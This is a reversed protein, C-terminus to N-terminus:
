TTTNQKSTKNKYSSLVPAKLVILLTCHSDSHDNGQQLGWPDLLVQKHSQGSISDQLLSTTKPM